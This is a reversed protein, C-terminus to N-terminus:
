RDKGVQAALSQRHDSMYLCIAVHVICYSAFISGWIDTDMLPVGSLFAVLPVITSLVAVSIGTFSNALLSSMGLAMLKTFLRNHLHSDDAAMPSRGRLRRMIMVRVLEVCPYSLLCAYFWVSSVVNSYLDVCALAIFASLAYSGFDGLFILGTTANFVIFVFLSVLLAHYVLTGTQVYAVLCVVLAIGSLLGNAGDAINGANIFGVVCLTVGIGIVLHHNLFQPYNSEFVEVPLRDPNVLFYVVICFFLLILRVSPTLRGTLDEWFGVCGVLLIVAEFGSLNIGVDYEFSSDAQFFIHAFFFGTAGLFVLVGGFRSSKRDSIGHKEADDVLM